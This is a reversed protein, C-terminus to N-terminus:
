RFIENGPVPQTRQKHISVHHTNEAKTLSGPAHHPYAELQGAPKRGLTQAVEPLSEADFFSGRDSVYGPVILGRRIHKGLAEHSIDLRRAAKNASIIRKPM